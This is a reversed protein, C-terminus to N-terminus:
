SFNEDSEEKPTITGTEQSQVPSLKVVIPTDVDEDGDFIIEKDEYDPHRFLASELPWCSSPITAVGREDTVLKTFDGDELDDNSEKNDASETACGAVIALGGAVGGLVVRRRFRDTGM